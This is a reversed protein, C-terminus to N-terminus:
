QRIFERERLLFLDDLSEQICVHLVVIIGIGDVILNARHAVAFVMRMHMQHERRTFDIVAIPFLFPLWVYKKRPDIWIVGFFTAAALRADPVPLIAGLVKRDETFIKCSDLILYQRFVADGDAHIM